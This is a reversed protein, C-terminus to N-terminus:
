VLRSSSVEYLVQAMYQMCRMTFRIQMLKKESWFFVIVSHQENHSSKQPLM